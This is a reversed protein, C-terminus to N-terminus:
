LRDKMDTGIIVYEFDLAELVTVDAFTLGIGNYSFIMITLNLTLIGAILVFVLNSKMSSSYLITEM